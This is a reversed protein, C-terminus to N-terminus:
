AVMLQVEYAFVVKQYISCLVLFRFVLFLIRARRQTIEDGCAQIEQKCFSISSGVRWKKRPSATLVLLRWETKKEELFCLNKITCFVCRSFYPSPLPPMIRHWLQCNCDFALGTRHEQCAWLEFPCWVKSSIVSRLLHCPVCPLPGFQAQRWLYSVRATLNASELNWNQFWVKLRTFTSLNSLKM